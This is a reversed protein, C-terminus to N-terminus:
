ARPTDVKELLAPIVNEARLGEIELEPSLLVRHGLAPLAAEKIDDPLVFDRGALLAMARAARVLAIAG